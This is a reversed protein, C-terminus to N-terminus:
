RAGVAPGVLGSIDCGAARAARAANEVAARMEALASEDHAPPRGADEAESNAILAQNRALKAEGIRRRLTECDNM